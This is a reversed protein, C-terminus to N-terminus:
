GEAGAGDATDKCACSIVLLLLLLLLLLLERRTRSSCLELAAVV